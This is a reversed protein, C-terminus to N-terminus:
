LTVRYHALIARVKAADTAPLRPLLGKLFRRHGQTMTGSAVPGNSALLAWTAPSVGQLMKPAKPGAAHQEASALAAALDTMSPANGAKSAADAAVLIASPTLTESKNPKSM